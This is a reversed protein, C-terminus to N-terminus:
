AAPLLAHVSHACACNDFGPWECWLTELVQTPWLLLRGDASRNTYHSAYFDVYNTAFPIYRQSNALDQTVWYYDLAMLGAEAFGNGGFDYRVWGGESGPGELWQPYGPPRNSASDCGYEGGQYLGHVDVTETFFIGSQGEPLLLESRARALPIFGSVWELVVQMEQWDGAALFTQYPFRTNQFWHNPGWQRYDVDAPGSHGPQSTFLMGNFPIPVNVGGGAGSGGRGQVAYIFRSLAYQRALVLASAPTAAAVPAPGAGEGEAVPAPATVCTGPCRDCLARLTSDSANWAWLENKEVGTPNDISWTFLWPCQAGNLGLVSDVAAGGVKNQVWM